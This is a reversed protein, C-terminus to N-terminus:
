GPPELGLSTLVDLMQRHILGNAALVGGSRPDFVSGDLETIVAGAGALIAAAGVTDWPSLNRQWTGDLWGCAVFCLDLAASGLRRLGQAVENFRVFSATNDIRSSVPTPFGTVLLARELRDLASPRIPRANRFAGLGPAGTFTWGLAPAHVVGLRAQGARFLGISVAFLPLGHAFNVTGDLPDVYFIGAGTEPVLSGEEGVIGVGPFEEGLRRVILAEARRDFETVIDKEASKYEVTPQRDWGELLIQGADRAIAELAALQAVVDTM